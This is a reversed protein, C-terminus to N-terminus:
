GNRWRLLTREIGRQQQLCAILEAESPAGIGPVLGAEREEETLDNPTRLAYYWRESTVYATWWRPAEVDIKTAAPHDGSTPTLLEMARMITNPLLLLAM